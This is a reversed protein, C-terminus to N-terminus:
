FGLQQLSNIDATVLVLGHVVSAMFFFNAIQKFNYYERPTLEITKM